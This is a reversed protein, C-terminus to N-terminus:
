RIRASATGATPGARAVEQVRVRKPPPVLFHRLLGPVRGLQGEVLGRQGEVLGFHRLLDASEPEEADAEAWRAAPDEALALEALLELAEPRTTTLLDKIEAFHNRAESGRLLQNRAAIAFPDTPQGELLGHPTASLAQRLLESGYLRTMLPHGAALEWAQDLAAPGFDLGAVEGLQRLLADSWRRSLPGVWHPRFYNLTPNLQGLVRPANVADPLRGVLVVHVGRSRDQSLARLLRLLDVAGAAYNNNGVILLDHEDIMLCVPRRQEVLHNVARQLGRLGKLPKASRSQPPQLQGCLATALGDVGGDITLEADVYAFAWTDSEGQQAHATFRAQVAKALSTKGMKRLGFLGIAPHARLDAVLQLLDDDRGVLEAGVVPSRVDFPDAPRLLALLQGEILGVRGPQVAVIGQWHRLAAIRLDLNPRGDAVLLLRPDIVSGPRAALQRVADPTFAELPRTSAIMLVFPAVQLRQRLRPPPTLFIRAEEEGRSFGIFDDAWGLARLESLTGELWPMAEIALALSEASEPSNEDAAGATM